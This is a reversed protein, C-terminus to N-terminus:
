FYKARGVRAWRRWHLKAIGSSYRNEEREWARPSIPPLFERRPLFEWEPARGFALLGTRTEAQNFDKALELV